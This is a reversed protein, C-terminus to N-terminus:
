KLNWDQEVASGDKMVVLKGEMTVRQGAILKVQKGDANTVVGDPSVKYGNRMTMTTKMDTWKSEAYMMMKGDRMEVYDSRESAGGGYTQASLSGTLCLISLLLAVFTQNLFKM